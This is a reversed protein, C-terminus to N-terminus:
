VSVQDNSTGLRKAIEIKEMISLSTYKWLLEGDLINKQPNRLEPFCAIVHRIFSIQKFCSM